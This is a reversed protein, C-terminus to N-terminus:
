YYALCVLFLLPYQLNRMNHCQIGFTLLFLACYHAHWSNLFCYYQYINNLFINICWPIQLSCQSSYAHTCLNARSYKIFHSPNQDKHSHCHLQNVLLSSINRYPYFLLIVLLDKQLPPSKLIIIKSFQHSSRLAIYAVLVVIVIREQDSKYM